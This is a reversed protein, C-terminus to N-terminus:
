ATNQCPNGGQPFHITGHTITPDARRGAVFMEGRLSALSGREVIRRAGCDACGLWCREVQEAFVELGDGEGRVSREGVGRGGGRRRLGGVEVANAMLREELQPYCQPGAYPVLEVHAVRGSKCEESTAALAQM